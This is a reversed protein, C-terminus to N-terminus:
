KNGVTSNYGYDCAQYLSIYFKEKENLLDRKCEELLEFTFNTLGDKLMAQYLKNQAPTDIGLGCKVHDKWRKAIDVSQGIYCLGTIRNTIKYIGCVPMTRRLINLCLANMKKQYFTQWILMSLVRPEPLRPKLAEIMTITSQEAPTLHLCFFELSQKIEEERLQAEIAAAYTKQIKDLEEQHEQIVQKMNKLQIDFNEEAKNYESELGDVYKEFANYFSNQEKQLAQEYDKQLSHIKADFENEKAEYTLDLIDFYNEAAKELEQLKQQKQEELFQIENHLRESERNLVYHERKLIDNDTEIQQNILKIKTNLKIKKCGIIFTTIGAAALIGGIIIPIM